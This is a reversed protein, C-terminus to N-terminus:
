ADDNTYCMHSGRIEITTRRSPTVAYIIALLLCHDELHNIDLM